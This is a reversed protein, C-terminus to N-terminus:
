DKDLENIYVTFYEKKIVGMSYMHYMLSLMNYILADIKHQQRTNKPMFFRHQKSQQKMINKIMSRIHEVCMYSNNPNFKKTQRKYVGFENEIRMLDVWVYTFPSFVLPFVTPIIIYIHEQEQKIMTNFLDDEISAVEDILLVLDDRREWRTPQTGGPMTFIHSYGIHPSTSNKCWCCNEDFVFVRSKM